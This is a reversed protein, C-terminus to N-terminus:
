WRPYVRPSVACADANSNGAAAVYTIGSEISRRVAADLVESAALEGHDRGCPPDRERDGLRHRRAVTLRNGNGACDLVRVSVLSTAPANGYEDRWGVRRRRRHRTPCLRRRRRARVVVDSGTIGPGRVRPARTWAAGLLYLAGRDRHVTVTRMTSRCSDSTSVISDGLVHGPHRPASVDTRSWRPVLPSRRLGLTGEASTRIASGSGRAFVRLSRHWRRRPGPELRAVRAVDAPVGDDFTVVYQGVVPIPTPKCRSWNDAATSPLPASSVGVCLSASVCLFAVVLRRTPVASGKM